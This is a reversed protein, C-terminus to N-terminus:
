EATAISRLLRAGAESAARAAENDSAASAMADLQAFTTGPKLCATAGPLSRLRDYPTMFDAVRHRRDRRRGDPGSRRRRFFCLRHYNLYPALVRRAFANVQEVIAGQPPEGHADGGGPARPGSREAGRLIRLVAAATHSTTEAGPGAHFGRLGFPFAERVTALCPGLAPPALDEVSQVFQFQTVEDVLILHYLARRGPLDPQLAAVVRVHGPQEFPGPRWREGTTWPVPHKPDPTKERHTRYAASRRLNYLHSNSIDALREFRRDGFRHCARVCYVRAAPGSPTGHLTDLEALLEVDTKTYRRAFSRRTARRHDALKGTARHQSLLRTIQARSLGTVRAILRRLLGKDGRGLRFYDFRQLTREIFRYAEARTRTRPETTEDGALFEQVQVLSQLRDARISTM